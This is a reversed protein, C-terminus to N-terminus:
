EHYYYYEYCMLKRPRRIWKFNHEFRRVFSQFYISCVDDFLTVLVIVTFVLANQIVRVCARM